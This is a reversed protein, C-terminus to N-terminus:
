QITIICSHIHYVTLLVILLFEKWNILNSIDEGFDFSGLSSISNCTSSRILMDRDFLDVSDKPEMINGSVTGKTVYAEAKVSDQIEKTTEHAVKWFDVNAVSMYNMCPGHCVYVFSGMYEKHPIPECRRKADLVFEWKIKAGEGGKMGDQM